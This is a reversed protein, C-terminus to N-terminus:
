VRFGGHRRRNYYDMLYIGMGFALLILVGAVLYVFQPISGAVVALNAIPGTGKLSTKLSQIEQRSTELEHTLGRNAQELDAIRLDDPQTNKDAAARLTAIEAQLEGVKVLESSLKRKLETNENTLVDVDASTGADGGAAKKIRESLAKNEKELRELALRAPPEQMLYAADVWGSDGDADKVLALEGERKIVELPTGTALVKIIASNLDQEQHVGVLLKDIVYATEAGQVTVQYLSLLLVILLRRLKM